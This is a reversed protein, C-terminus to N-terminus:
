YLTNVTGSSDKYVLKSQNNSYYISNNPANADEVNVPIFFGDSNVRGRISLLQTQHALIETDHANYDSANAIETRGAIDRSTDQTNATYDPYTGPM